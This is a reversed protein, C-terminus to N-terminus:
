HMKQKTFKSMIGRDLTFVHVTHQSTSGDTWTGMHASERGWEDGTIEFESRPRIMRQRTFCKLFARERSCEGKNM